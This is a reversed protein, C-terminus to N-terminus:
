HLKELIGIFQQEVSNLASPYYFILINHTLLKLVFLPGM